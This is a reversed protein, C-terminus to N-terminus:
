SLINHIYWLNHFALQRDTCMVHHLLGAVCVADKRYEQTMWTELSLSCTILAHAPLEVCRKCNEYETSKRVIDGDSDYALHALPQAIRQRLRVDPLQRKTHLLCWLPFSLNLLARDVTTNSSINSSIDFEQRLWCRRGQSTSSPIIDTERMVIDAHHSM